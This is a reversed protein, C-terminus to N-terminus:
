LGIDRPAVDLARAVRLAHDARIRDSRRGPYFTGRKVCDANPKYGLAREFHTQTFGSRRALEAVTLSRDRRLRAEVLERLQANSIKEIKPERPEPRPPNMRDLHRQVAPESMALRESIRAVSLGQRVLQTIQTRYSNCRKCSKIECRAILCYDILQGSQALAPMLSLQDPNVKCQSTSRVPTNSVGRSARARIEAIAVEPDKSFTIVSM